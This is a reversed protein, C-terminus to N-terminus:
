FQVTVGGLYTRTRPYSAYDIKILDNNITNATPDTGSYKTLTVLNQGTVFLGLAHIFKGAPIPVNYSLRVSQLRLYNAKEVTTSNVVRQGQAVPNVFSPYENTPNTPTWRNLLPEAVRNRRFSFPFYSDVLNNNLISGGQAGELFVDLSLGKFQVTNTLGYYFDPLSKGLIVRDTDTIQGDGNQDQYKTDGPKVGAPAKSLDDTTQWVGVVQYGYFNGLSVGPTIISANTINGGGGAYIPASGGLSLINNKLTTLNANVTWSFNKQRVVNGILSFEFGTNRVSGVNRVQNSYGTSLPQPVALLLDSTKRNYYEVSGQLRGDLFAFDVGLDAQVAAEWKLDANPSRTPYIAPYRVGGQVINGGYSFTSLYLFNGINQNGIAGYSGRLKLETLWGYDRLFSEEKLKWALAVSPFYGVQNNEGFRSSADARLSATLLYRNNYSYNVRGLVSGLRTEAAGSGVQNLASNGSGIANFTLDPLTFGRASASFTTLGFHEYTTGVVASISHKGIEKNFNLTAEGLYYNRNGSLITALGSNQSGALTIPDLWENRQSINVDGGVRLRVSLSPLLYYEGYLNGFTRYSDAIAYQGNILAVPNDITMATSRYYSGDPNFIPVTPDYSIASYLANANENIGQDGTSNLKDRIYSTSLSVGFAYKQAVRNEFNLRASYRRNASNIVVGQQDFYGLSAFYKTNGTTGSLSLDHTQTPASQFLAAQWDTNVYTDPVRQTADAAGADVLANLVDHYEQGTLMRPYKAVKQFGYQGGYNLQLSGAAGRKTTIIVVGNSGRSGYIATASADKLVEISEIDAPNLSNLPNRPNSNGVSGPGNGTIPADNNVPMGDVVYLPDNSASISSAGRIKVSIASGPEGSKQYVQVGAARGQLAQQVNVIAGPTLDKEKVTSVSGTLDSKRVTGYGVVVVDDLSNVNEALSVNIETREGAAIEQSTFGVSSFVLTSNPAPVNLSYTGDPNSTAGLTTGKVLVTVGPLPENAKSTVRGTIRLGQGYSAGLSLWLLGVVLLLQQLPNIHLHRKM